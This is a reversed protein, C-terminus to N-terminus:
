DNEHVAEKTSSIADLASISTTTCSPDFVVPSRPASETPHRLPRLRRSNAVPDVLSLVYRKDEHEVEPQPPDDLYSYVVDVVRGALFGQELEYIGGLVSVTTDRRVRRRERVALAERLQPETVHNPEREAPAYVSLPARGMLGAHPASHYHRQLFAALRHNIDDLTGVHGLHDLCGQRMTRWFREMKGRAEPDYPRAHVLSIGLRSCATQLVEGRYTSGNDLNQARGLFTAMCACMAFTRAFPWSRPM